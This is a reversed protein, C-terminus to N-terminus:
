APIAHAGADPAARRVHLQADQLAERVARLQLAVRQEVAAVRRERVAVEELRQSAAQLLDAARRETLVAAWRESPSAEPERAPEEAAPEPARAEELSALAQRYDAAVARLFAAVEERDYGRARVLFEKVAIDDPRFPM